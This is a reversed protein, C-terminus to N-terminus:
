LKLGIIWNPVILSIFPIWLKGYRERAGDLMILNNDHYTQFIHNRKSNQIRVEIPICDLVIVFVLM